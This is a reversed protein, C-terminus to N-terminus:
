VGGGGGEKMSVVLPNVKLGRVKRVNGLANLLDRVHATLTPDDGHKLSAVAAELSLGLDETSAHM